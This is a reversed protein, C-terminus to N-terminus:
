SNNPRSPRTTMPNVITIFQQEHPNPKTPSKLTKIIKYQSPLAVPILRPSSSVTLLSQVVKIPTPSTVNVTPLLKAQQINAFRDFLNPTASATIVQPHTIINRSQSPIGAGIIVPNNIVKCETANTNTLTDLLPFLSTSPSSASIIIPKGNNISQLRPLIRIGQNQTIIYPHRISASIPNVTRLPSLTRLPTVKQIPNHIYQQINNPRIPRNVSVRIPVQHQLVHIPKQQPVNVFQQPRLLPRITKHSVQIYEPNMNKIMINPRIISNMTQPAIQIPTPMSYSIISPNIVKNIVNHHNNRITNNAAIRIVNRVQPMQLIRRVQPPPPPAQAINRVAPIQVVNPGLQYLIQPMSKQVTIPKLPATMPRIVSNGQSVKITLTQNLIHPQTVYKPLIPSVKTITPNLTADKRPRGVKKPPGKPKTLKICKKYVPTTPPPPPIIKVSNLYSMKTFTIANSNVLNSPTRPTMMRPSAVRLSPIKFSTEIPSPAVSSSVIPSAVRPTTPPIMPTPSSYDEYSSSYLSSESSVPSYRNNGYHGGGKEYNVNHVQADIRENYIILMEEDADFQAKNEEEEKITRLRNLEWEQKQFM